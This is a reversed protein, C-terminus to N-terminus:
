WGLKLYTKQKIKKTKKENRKYNFFIRLNKKEIHIIHWQKKALTPSPLLLL